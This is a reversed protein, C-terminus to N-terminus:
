PKECEMHSNEYFHYEFYYSTHNTVNLERTWIM